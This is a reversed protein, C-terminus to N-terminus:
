GKGFTAERNPRDFEVLENTARSCIAVFPLYDNNAAKSLGRKPM